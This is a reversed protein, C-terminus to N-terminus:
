GCSNYRFLIYYSDRMTSWPFFKDYNHQKISDKAQLYGGISWLQSRVSTIDAQILNMGLVNISSVSTTEAAYLPPPIFILCFIFPLRKNLTM